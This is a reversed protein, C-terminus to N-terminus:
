QRNGLPIISIPIWAIREDMPGVFLYLQEVSFTFNPPAPLQLQDAEEKKDFSALTLHPILNAGYLGDYAPYDPFETLLYNYLSVIPEPDAPTLLHATEFRKYRDLTVEFPEVLRCKPKLIKIANDIAKPEVFPYFLTIHAPGQVFSVPAYKERLPAAFAQVESPPVILLSTQLKM